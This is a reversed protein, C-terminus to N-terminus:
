DEDPNFELVERVTPLKKNAWNEAGDYEHRESYSDTFLILGFLEQGGFGSDYDFDLSNLFEKYEENSYNEKLTFWDYKGYSIEKGIKACVVKKDGVEEIFEKKANEM